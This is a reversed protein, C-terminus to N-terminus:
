ATPLILQARTGISPEFTARIILGRACPQGVENVLNLDWGNQTVYAFGPGSCNQICHYQGSLLVQSSAPTIGLASVAVLAALVKM